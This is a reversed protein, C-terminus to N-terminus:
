TDDHGTPAGKRRPGPRGGPGARRPTLTGCAATTDALGSSQVGCTSSPL